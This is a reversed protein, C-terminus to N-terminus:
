VPLRPHALLGETQGAFVQYARLADPSDFKSFNFGIIRTGNRKMLEWTRRAHQALLGWRDPRKLGFLDPYYYGGGWEIFADNPRSRPRPM